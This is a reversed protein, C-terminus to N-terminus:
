QIPPSSASVVRKPNAWTGFAFSIDWEDEQKCGSLLVLMIVLLEASVRSIRRKM